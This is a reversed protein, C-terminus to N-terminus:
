KIFGLKKACMNCIIYVRDTNLVQVTIGDTRQKLPNFVSLETNCEPIECKM